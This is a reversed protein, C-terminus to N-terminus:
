FRAEEGLFPNSEKRFQHNGYAKCIYAIERKFAVAATSFPAEM